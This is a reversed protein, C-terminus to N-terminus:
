EVNCENKIMVYWAIQPYLAKSKPDEAMGVLGASLQLEITTGSTDKYKLPVTSCENPLNRVEEDDIKTFTNRNGYTDYPYFKIVWGSIEDVRFPGEGCSAEEVITERKKCISQWFLTDVEGGAADAIKQLVPELEDMWWDLDYQRLSHAKQVVKHWDDKTGELYVVPIGCGEELLYEFYNQMTSMISIQSAVFSAPTTTSFDNTLQAVLNSDAWQAIQKTFQSFYPEWEEAPKNVLGPKCEVQLEMTGDHRVIQHRLKESNKLVHVDFGRAIVLWVADPSLILPRHFAYATRVSNIFPHGDELYLSDPLASHTVVEGDIWRFSNTSTADKQRDIPLIPLKNLRIAIANIDPDAMLLSDQVQQSAQVKQTKQQKPQKHCSVLPLALMLVISIVVSKKM